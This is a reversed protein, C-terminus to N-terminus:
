AEDPTEQTDQIAQLQEWTALQEDIASCIAQKEKATYNPNWRIVERTSLLAEAEDASIMVTSEMAQDFVSILPITVRWKRGKAFFHVVPKDGVGPDLIVTVPDGDHTIKTERKLAKTLETAMTKM